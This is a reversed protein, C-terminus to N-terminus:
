GLTSYQGRSRCMPDRPVEGWRKGERRYKPKLFLCAVVDEPEYGTPSRKPSYCPELGTEEGGVQHGRGLSDLSNELVVILVVALFDARRTDKPDYHTVSHEKAFTIFPPRLPLNHLRCEM